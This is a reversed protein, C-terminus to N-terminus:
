CACVEVFGFKEEILVGRKVCYGKCKERSAYEKKSDWIRISITENVNMERKLDLIGLDSMIRIKEEDLADGNKLKKETLYNLVYIALSKKKLEESKKILKEESFFLYGFATSILVVLILATIMADFIIQGRDL